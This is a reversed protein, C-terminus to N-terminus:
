DTTKTYEIVINATYNSRDIGTSINLMYYNNESNMTLRTAQNAGNPNIDPLTLVYKLNGSTGTAVGYYNVINAENILLGTSVNKTTANPLAGFDIVKRYLPKGLWTGIVTETTSYTSKADLSNKYNTSLDLNIDNGSTEVVINDGDVLNKAM